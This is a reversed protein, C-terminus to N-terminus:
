SKLRRYRHQFKPQTNGRINSGKIGGLSKRARRFRGPGKSPRHVRPRFIVQRDFRLKSPLLKVIMTGTRAFSVGSRCFGPAQGSHDSSGTFGFMGDDLHRSVTAPKHLPETAHPSARAVVPLRASAIMAFLVGFQNNAWIKILLPGPDRSNGSSLSNIGRM